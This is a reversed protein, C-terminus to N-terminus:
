PLATVCCAGECRMHMRCCLKGATTAAPGGLWYVRLLAAGAEPEPPCPSLALFYKEEQETCLKVTIIRKLRPLLRKKRAAASREPLVEQHVSGYTNCYDLLCVHRGTFSYQLYAWALKACLRSFASSYKFCRLLLYAKGQAPVPASVPSSNFDLAVTVAISASWDRTVRKFCLKLCTPLELLPTGSCSTPQENGYVSTREAACAIVSPCSRSMWPSAVLSLRRSSRM